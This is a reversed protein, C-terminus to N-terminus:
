SCLLAYKWVEIYFTAGRLVLPNYFNEQSVCSRLIATKFGTCPFNYLLLAWFATGPYAMKGWIVQRLIWICSARMYRCIFNLNQTYIRSGVNDWVLRIEIPRGMCSHKAGFFDQSWLVFVHSAVMMLGLMTVRSSGFKRVFSIYGSSTFIKANHPLPLKSTHCPGSPRCHHRIRERSTLCPRALFVLTYQVFGVLEADCYVM